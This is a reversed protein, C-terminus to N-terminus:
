SNVQVSASVASPEPIISQIFKGFLVHKTTSFGGYIAEELIIKVCLTYFETTDVGKSRSVYLCLKQVINTRKM